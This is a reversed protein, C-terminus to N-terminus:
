DVQVQPTLVLHRRGALIYNHEGLLRMIGMMRRLCRRLLMMGMRLVKRHLLRLKDEVFHLMEEKLLRM